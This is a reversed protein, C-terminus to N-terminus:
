KKTLTITSIVTDDNGDNDYDYVDTQDIKLTTGNNTVINFVEKDGMGFDLQLKSENDLFLWAYTTTQPDTPDCKTAGENDTVTGNKEFRTVDDKSCADIDAFTEETVNNVVTKYDSISFNKESILQTNTQSTSPASTNPTLASDDDGCATFCLGLAALSLLTIQQKKKM